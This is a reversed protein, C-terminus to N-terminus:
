PRQSLMAALSAAFDNVMQGAVQGVLGQGYQAVAGTMRLDTLIEVRTSDGVAILTSIIEAVAGGRGKAEKAHATLVTRGGLEDHETRQVDTILELAVPGLKVSMRAKWASDSVVATLEAGPMCPVIRPVDDLAAWTVTTSAPVEFSNELRM